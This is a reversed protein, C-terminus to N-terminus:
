GAPAPAPSQRGLVGVRLQRLSTRYQPRGQLLFAPVPDEGLRQPSLWSQLGEGRYEALDQMSAAHDPLALEIGPQLGVEFAGGIGEQQFVHRDRALQDGLGDGGAFADRDVAIVVSISDGGTHRQRAAKAGDAGVDDGINGVAERLTIAQVEIGEVLQM